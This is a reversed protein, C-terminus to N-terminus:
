NLKNWLKFKIPLYHKKMQLIHMNILKVKHRLLYKQQKETLIMNYNKMLLRIM